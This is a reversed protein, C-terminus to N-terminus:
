DREKCYQEYAEQRQDEKVQIQQQMEVKVSLM